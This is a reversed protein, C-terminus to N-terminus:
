SINILFDFDMQRQKLSKSSIVWVDYSMRNKDSLRGIIAQSGELLIM